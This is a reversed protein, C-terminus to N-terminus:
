TGALGAGSCQESVNMYKMSAPLLSGDLQQILNCSLDLFLLNALPRLGDVQFWLCCFTVSCAGRSRLLTSSGVLIPGLVQKPAAGPLLM